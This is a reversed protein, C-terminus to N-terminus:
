NAADWIYIIGDKSVLQPFEIGFEKLTIKIYSIRGKPMEAATGFVQEFSEQTIAVAEGNKIKNALDAIPNLHSKMGFSRRKALDMVEKSLKVKEFVLVTSGKVKSGTM